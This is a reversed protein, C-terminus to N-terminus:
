RCQVVREVRKWDCPSFTEDQAFHLCKGVLLDRPDHVNRDARDHRSERARPLRELSFHEGLACQRSVRRRSIYTGIYPLATVNTATRTCVIELTVPQSRNGRREASTPKDGISQRTPLGGRFDDLVYQSQM